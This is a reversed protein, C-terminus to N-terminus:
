GRTVAALPTLSHQPDTTAVTSQSHAKDALYDTHPSTQPHQIRPVIFGEYYRPPSLPVSLLLSRRPLYGPLRRHRRTTSRYPAQFVALIELLSAHAPISVAMQGFVDSAVKRCSLPLPTVIHVVSSLSEHCAVSRGQHQSTYTAHIFATGNTLTQNGTARQGCSLKGAISYVPSPM